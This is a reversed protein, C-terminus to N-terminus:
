YSSGHMRETVVAWNNGVAGVIEQMQGVTAADNPKVGKGVNSLPKGGADIGKDTESPDDKIKRGEDSLEAKGTTVKDFNVNRATAIKIAGKDNSLVINDDAVFNLNPNDKDVTKVAKGDIEVHWSKLASGADANIARIAEDITDKGTGGIDSTTVKGNENKAHGVLITKLGEAAGHLQSGTVADKSDATVAGAKLNTLQTGQGDAGGALTVKGTDITGDAKKDYKM